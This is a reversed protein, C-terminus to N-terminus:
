NVASKASEIRDTDSKIVASFILNGLNRIPQYLVSNQQVEEDYLRLGKNVSELFILLAGLIIGWGPLVFFGAIMGIISGWIGARTAGFRKAGAAPVIYDLIMLIGALAGMTALMSWSIVQGDNGLAFLVLGLLSLVTGPLVPLVAGALGALALLISCVALLIDGM